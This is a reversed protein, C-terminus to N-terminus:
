RMKSIREVLVTRHCRKKDTDEYCVLVVDEDSELLEVVTDLAERAEQSGDLYDRYREEFEIDEWVSNHAGESCMGRMKRNEVENKFEDLLDSPPGLERLNEDVQGHFWPAPRRVVGVLRADGPEFLDHQLAAVYTHTLESM